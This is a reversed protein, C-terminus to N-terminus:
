DCAHTNHGDHARGQWKQHDKPGDLGAFEILRGDYKWFSKQSNYGDNTGLIENVRQIIGECQVKERRFVASRKHETLALGAILDSKGGGASGGYGIVDARADQAESQRGIQPRWICEALDAELIAMVEARDEDSMRKLLSEWESPTTPIM